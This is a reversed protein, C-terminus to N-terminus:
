VRERVPRKPTHDVAQLGIVRKKARRPGGERVLRAAFAGDIGDRHPWSQLWGEPSVLEAPLQDTAPDPRFEPHASLFARVVAQNEEPELSCTAYVLVGGPAVAGAADELIRAQLQPLSELDSPELRWRLEPKRRIVGTGTCPVDCLVLDADRVVPHHSDAAVALLNDLRLRALNRRLRALRRRSPDAAVVKGAPGVLRALHTAKGGPAACADYVLSGARPAALLGVLMAAEDQVYFLGEDYGPLLSPRPAGGRIKLAGTAWRGREVELGAERLREELDGIRAPDEVRLVLPAQRNNAELLQRALEFGHRQLYREALWQPHSHEVALWLAPEREPSPLPVSDWGRQLSRLVGNVVPGLRRDERKALEVAENVVAYDPIRELFRLQFAATRLIDQVRQPLSNLGQRLFHDLYYDLKGRLRLTGSVLQRVLARDRPDLRDLRPDWDLELERWRGLMDLALRRPGIGSKGKGASPM